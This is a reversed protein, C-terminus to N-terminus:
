DGTTEIRITIKPRADIEIAVVSAALELGADIEPALLQALHRPIYGIEDFGHLILIANRDVTNDYDRRLEVASGQALASAAVARGRFSTGRVGAEIPLLEALEVPESLLPNPTTRALAAHADDLLAGSLGFQEHLTEYDLGGLWTMFAEQSDDVVQARYATALDIAVRRVPIGATMAWVAPASPVGFRVMSPMVSIATPLEEIELVRQAIRFFGALGWPLQYGFFDEIFRTLQEISVADPEFRTRITDVSEGNLWAELLDGVMGAFAEAPQMEDIALLAALALQTLSHYDPSTAGIILRLTLENEIISERLQECSTSRLGTGSYAHLLERDPVRALIADRGTIFATRLPDLSQGAARAQVAVLTQSLVEELHAVGDQGTEEAVMALIEPDLAAGLGAPSMRNEVLARLARYLASEVPEVDLRRQLFYAFDAQDAATAVIHVITGETEARARGARGAINWYDRALIREMRDTDDNHRRSSHVIATRVPLNVGQALTTTAIIVRYKRERFDREIADRVANPLQGHHVAVGSRLMQTVVHQEGLWESATQAARTTPTRFYAPITEETREALQIRFLLAQGLAQVWNRQTTFILAPGLKAFEWALAAAVHGKNGTEPFWPRNTRGSDPNIYEFQRRRILGPVFESLLPEDQGQEYRLVGVSGTWHLQAVRQRSPRWSSEIINSPSGTLWRSFDELTQNSVVASLAILRATPVEIKLRALLLEFKAGRQADDVIHGEDFVVLSVRRLGEARLRLLLDFKEPTVVLLDADNALVREFDNTEYAGVISSVRYGLDTLIAAFTEEVETVLARYPAVYVCMSGPSRVLMDVIALEAVRTKGASTPMRVVASRSQELLGHELAQTQSPWLESISPSELLNRGVGRALVKLFRNWRPSSTNVDALLRWTSRAAATPVLARLVRVLNADTVLSLRAFAEEAADLYASAEDLRQSQGALFFRSAADMGRAFVANAADVALQEASDVESPPIMQQSALQRVRLFHRQLFWVTLRHLPNVGELSLGLHRAISSSNAQYGALEYAAAAHLLASDRDVSEELVALSEWLRAYQLTAASISDVGGPEEIALREIESFAVSANRVVRQPVYTWAYVPPESILEALTARARIQAAETQFSSDAVIGTAVPASLDGNTM